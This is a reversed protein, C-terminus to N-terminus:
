TITCIFSDYFEQNFSVGISGQVILVLLSQQWILHGMCNDSKNLSKVIVPIVLLIFGTGPALLLGVPGYANTKTASPDHAGISRQHVFSGSAGQKNHSAVPLHKLLFTWSM